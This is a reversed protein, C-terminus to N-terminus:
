ISSPRAIRCSSGPLKVEKDKQEAKKKRDAQERVADLLQAEQDRLFKQSDTLRADPKHPANDTLQEVTPAGGADLPVLYLNGERVYTIARDHRVWRPSSEVAATRTLDHRAGSADIMVIDGRDAFVVRQHAADWRGNVPVARKKQDETLQRPQGGARGVAYTSPEEEGPRRWDFFLQQSDASWRLNEPPYGVLDPGRMISTVTLEVPRMPAAPPQASLAPGVVLLLAPLLIRFRNSTM